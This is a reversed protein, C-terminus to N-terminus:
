LRGPLGDDNTALGEPECVVGYFDSKYVVQRVFPPSVAAIVGYSIAGIERGQERELYAKLGKGEAELSATWVVFDVCQKALPTVLATREEIPRSRLVLHIEWWM